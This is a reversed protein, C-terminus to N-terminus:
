KECSKDEQETSLERHVLTDPKRKKKKSKKYIGLGEACAPHSVFDVKLCLKVSKYQTQRRRSWDSM